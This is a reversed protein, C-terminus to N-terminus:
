FNEFYLDLTDKSSKSLKNKCQGCTYAFVNMGNPNDISAPDNINLYPHTQDLASNGTYPILKSIRYQRYYPHLQTRDNFDLLWMLEKYFSINLIKQKKTPNNGCCHCPEKQLFRKKDRYKGIGWGRYDYVSKKEPNYNVIYGTRMKSPEASFGSSFAETHFNIKDALFCKKIIDDYKENLIKFLWEEGEDRMGKLKKIGKNKINEAVDNLILWESLSEQKTPTLLTNANYDEANYVQVYSKPALASTPQETIDEITERIENFIKEQQEGWYKMTTKGNNPSLQANELLKQNIFDKSFIIQNLNNNNTKLWEIIEDILLLSFIKYPTELDNFYKFFMEPRSFIIIMEETRKWYGIVEGKNKIKIEELKEEYSYGSYLAKLSTYQVDNENLINTIKEKIQEELNNERETQSIPLPFTKSINTTLTKTNKQEEDIEHFVHYPMDCKDYTNQRNSWVSKRLLRVEKQYPNDFNMQDTVLWITNGKHLTFIWNSYLPHISDLCGFLSVFINGDKIKEPIINNNKVWHLYSSLDSSFGITNSLYFKDDEYIIDGGDFYKYINFHKDTILKNIDVLITPDFKFDENPTIREYLNNLADNLDLNCWDNYLNKLELLHYLYDTYKKINVETLTGTSKVITLDLWGIRNNNKILNYLATINRGAYLNAEAIAKQVARKLTEDAHIARSGKEDYEKQEAEFDWNFLQCTKNCWETLRETFYKM